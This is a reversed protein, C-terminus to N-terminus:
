RVTLLDREPLAPFAGHPESQYWYAVSSIDDQLPRYRTDTGWGLAQMTVRLDTEFRIPDMIHFRYLGHRTGPTSDSNGLPYGMFPASFNKGFSWAGGFYDETGTGCITPFCDGGHEAVSEDVTKGRPIDGDLYFKIEGEGWWGTNNLGWAMYTGVYHGKGRVGDLITYVKKYPVPNTRRFQAHFYAADEPVDNLAYNVQYYLGCHEEGINTLTIRCHKRFPMPWYCNFANGPNVCVALSSIPAFVEYSTFASAFFDGVPCEVAPQAEKDWYIRLILNRYAGTPTMWIQQIAGPGKIDALELIQGPEVPESPRTKWGLGLDRAPGTPTGDEARSVDERGGGGKEGTKHEASISRTKADSLEFINGMHCNLGDFSM